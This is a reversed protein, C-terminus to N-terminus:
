PHEQKPTQADIGDISVDTGSWKGFLVRDGAKVEM